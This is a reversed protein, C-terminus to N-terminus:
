IRSGYLGIFTENASHYEQSLIDILELPKSYKCAQGVITSVRLHNIGHTCDTYLSTVWCIWAYWGGTVDGFEYVRKATEKSGKDSILTSVERRTSYPLHTNPTSSCFLLPLAEQMWTLKTTDMKGCTRRGLIGISSYFM